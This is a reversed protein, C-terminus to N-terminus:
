AIAEAVPYPAAAPFLSRRLGVGAAVGLTRQQADDIHLASAIVDDIERILEQDPVAPGENAQTRFHGAIQEFLRTLREEGGLARPQISRLDVVNVGLRLDNLADTLHLGDVPQVQALRPLLLAQRDLMRSAWVERTAPPRETALSALERWAARLIRRASADARMVRVLNMVILGIVAGIVAALSGTVFSAFDPVYNPTLNIGAIFIIAFAIGWVPRKPDLMLVGAAVLPPAMALYLLPLGDIAPLIGFVYLAAVPIAVISTTAFRRIPFSPDDFSAFLSCIVATISVAAFGETWDTLMAFAGTAIIGATAALASWAALGVDGHLPREGANDILPQTQRDAARQPDRLIQALKLSDKWAAILEALRELLSVRLVDAWSSSPDLSPMAARSSEILGDAQALLADDGERVVTAVRQLHESVTAPVGGSQQLALVRDEVATLLPLVGVLRAELARMLRPTAHRASPEFPLHAATLTLETLDAAFRKRATQEQRSSAATLAAAIWNRMDSLSAGLKGLVAQEASLPFLLGHFLATTAIGITIEEARAVAADFIGTPNVIQPFGVFAATYGALMFAYGHPGRFLLSLFLCLGTWAAIAALTLEPSPSLNPIILLGALAGVLTGLIRYFAKSLMAGAIPQATIYVTLMAWTPNKLDFLSAIAFATMCALWCNLGFLFPRSTLFKMSALSFRAIGVHLQVNTHARPFGIGLDPYRAAPEQRM